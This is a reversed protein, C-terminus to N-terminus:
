SRTLRRIGLFRHLRGDKYTAPSLHKVLNGETLHKLHMLQWLNSLRLVDLLIQIEAYDVQGSYGMYLFDALSFDIRTNSYRPLRCFGVLFTNSVVVMSVSPPFVFM